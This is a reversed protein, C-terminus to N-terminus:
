DRPSCAPPLGVAALEGSSATIVKAAPTTTARTTQETYFRRCRDAAAAAASTAPQRRAGNRQRSRIAARVRAARYRLVLLLLDPLRFTIQAAAKVIVSTYSGTAKAARRRSALGVDHATSFDIHSGSLLAQRRYVIGAAPQGTSQQRDAGDDNWGRRAAPATVQSRVSFTWKYLWCTKPRANLPPLTSNSCM